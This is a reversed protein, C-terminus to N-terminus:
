NWFRKRNACSLRLSCHLIYLVCDIAQSAPPFQCPEEQPGGAKGRSRSPPIMYPYRQSQPSYTVIGWWGLTLVEALTVGEGAASVGASVDAVRASWCNSARATRLITARSSRLRRSRSTM